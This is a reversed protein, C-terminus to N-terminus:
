SGLPSGFNGLTANSFGDKHQLLTAQLGEDYDMGDKLSDIGDKNGEGGCESGKGSEFSFSKFKGSSTPSMLAERKKLYSMRLNSEKHERELVFRDHEDLVDEGKIMKFLRNSIKTKMAVREMPVRLDFPDENEEARSGIEGDKGVGWRWYSVLSSSSFLKESTAKLKYLIAGGVFTCIVGDFWDFNIAIMDVVGVALAILGTQFAQACKHTALFGQGEGFMRIVDADRGAENLANVFHMSCMHSSVSVCLAYLYIRKLVWHAEDFHQNIETFAFLVVSASLLVASYVAYNEVKSRLRASVENVGHIMILAGWAYPHRKYNSLWTEVTHMGATKRYWSTFSEDEMDVLPLYSSTYGFMLDSYLEWNRMKSYEADLM